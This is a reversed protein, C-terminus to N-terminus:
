LPTSYTQSPARMCLSLPFPNSIMKNEHKNSFGKDKQFHRGKALIEGYLQQKLRDLISHTYTHTQVQVCTCVHVCMYVFVMGMELDPGFARGEYIFDV